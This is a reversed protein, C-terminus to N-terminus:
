MEQSTDIHIQMNAEKHEGKSFSDVASRQEIVPVPEFRVVHTVLFSKYVNLYM